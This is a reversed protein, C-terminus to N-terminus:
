PERHDGPPEQEAQGHAEERPPPPEAQRPPQERYDRRPEDRRPGDRRPDRSQQQPPPMAHRPPQIRRLARRLEDIEREDALTQREALEVLELIEDLQNITHKLSEAIETAHLVAQHIASGEAPRFDAPKTWQQPREQPRQPEPRRSQERYDRQERQERHERHERRGHPEHQEHRGRHEQPRAPPQASEPGRFEPDREQPREPARQEAASEQSSEPGGEAPTEPAAFTEGEAGMPEEPHPKRFGGATDGEAEPADLHQPPADEAPPIGPTM